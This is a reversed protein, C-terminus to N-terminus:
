PACGTANGPGQGGTGPGRRYEEIALRALEDCRENEPHGNHGRVWAWEVRHIKALELLREWLDRNLVPEKKSNM